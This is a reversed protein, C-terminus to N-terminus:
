KVRPLCLLNTHRILSDFDEPIQVSDLSRMRNHAANYDNGLDVSKKVCEDASEFKIGTEWVVPTPPGPWVLIIFVLEWVMVRDVEGAATLRVAQFRENIKAGV